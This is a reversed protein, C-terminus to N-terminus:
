NTINIIRIIWQTSIEEDNFAKEFEGLSYFLGQRRSENIFQKDTYFFVNDEENRVLELNIAYVIM